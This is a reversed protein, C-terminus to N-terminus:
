ELTMSLRRRTSDRRSIQQKMPNAAVKDLRNQGLLNVMLAPLTPM